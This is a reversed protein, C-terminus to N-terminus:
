LKSYDPMILLGNEDLNFKSYDYKEYTDVWTQVAAQYGNQIIPNGNKDVTYHGIWKENMLDLFEKKVNKPMVILDHHPSYKAKDLRIYSCKKPNRTKDHYVHIHPIAGENRQEVEVQITHNKCYEPNIIAMETLYEEDLGNLNKKNKNEKIIKM